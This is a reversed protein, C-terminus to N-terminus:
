LLILFEYSRFSDCWLAVWNMHMNRGTSLTIKHLTCDSQSSTMWSIPTVRWWTLPLRKFPFKETRIVCTVFTVSHSAHAFQLDVSNCGDELKLTQSRRDSKSMTVSLSTLKLNLNITMNIYLTLQYQSCYMEHHTSVGYQMYFFGYGNIDICYM